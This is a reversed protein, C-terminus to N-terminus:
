HRMMGILRVFTSRNHIKEIIVAERIIDQIVGPEPKQILDHYMMVAFECHM